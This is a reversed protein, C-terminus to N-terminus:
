YSSREYFEILVNGIVEAESAVSEATIAYKDKEFEDTTSATQVSFELTLAPIGIEAKAYAHMSGDVSWTKQGVASYFIIDKPYRIVDRWFPIVRNMGRMAIKKLVTDDEATGYFQVVENLPAGTHCDLFLDAGKNAELWKVIAKTEKETEHDTGHTMPVKDIELYSHPKWKYNFNRGVLVHNENFKCLVYDTYKANKDKLTGDEDFVGDVSLAEDYNAGLAYNPKNEIKYLTDVSYPVAVPLVSIICGERFQEPVNRGELVDRVFRYIAIIPPKEFGDSSTILYKPKKIDEDMRPSGYFVGATNYEGTSIVYEYNTFTIPNGDEDFLQNGNKDYVKDIVIDNREIRDPYDTVLADYLAWINKSTVDRKPLVDEIGMTVSLEERETRYFNPEVFGLKKDVEEMSFSLKKTKIM